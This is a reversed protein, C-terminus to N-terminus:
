TIEIPTQRIESSLIGEAKSNLVLDLVVRSDEQNEYIAETYEDIFAQEWIKGKHDSKILLLKGDIEAKDYLEDKVFEILEQQKEFTLDTWYLYITM